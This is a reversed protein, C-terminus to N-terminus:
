KIELLFFLFYLPSSPYKSGDGLWINNHWQQCDLQSTFSSCPDVTNRSYYAFLVGSPFRSSFTKLRLFLAQAAIFRAPRVPRLRFSCADRRLTPVLILVARWFGKRFNTELLVVFPRPLELIHWCAIRYALFVFMIHPVFCCSLHEERSFTM